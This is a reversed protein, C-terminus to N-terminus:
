ANQPEVIYLYQGICFALNFFLAGFNHLTARLGISAILWNQKTIDRILHLLRTDDDMDCCCLIHISRGLVATPGFFRRLICPTLLHNVDHEGLVHIVHHWTGRSVHRQVSSFRAVNNIKACWTVRTPGIVIAYNLDHYLIAYNKTRYHQPGYARIPNLSSSVTGIQSWRCGSTSASQSYTWVPQITYIIM